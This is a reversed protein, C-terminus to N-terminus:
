YLILKKINLYNYNDFKSIKDNSFNICILWFSAAENNTTTNQNEDKNNTTTNETVNNTCANENIKESVDEDQETEMKESDSVDESQLTKDAEIQDDVSREENLPEFEVKQNTFVCGKIEFQQSDKIEENDILDDPSEQQKM